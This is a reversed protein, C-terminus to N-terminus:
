WKWGRSSSNRDVCCSVWKYISRSVGVAWRWRRGASVVEEQLCSPRGRLELVSYLLKMGEGGLSRIVNLSIWSSCAEM